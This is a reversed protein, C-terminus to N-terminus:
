TSHRLHVVGLAQLLDYLPEFAEFFGDWGGLEGGLAAHIEGLTRRGDILGVVRALPPSVSFSIDLGQPDRHTVSAGPSAAAVDRLVPAFYPILVADRDRTTLLAVVPNDRRVAYFTHKHMACTVLETVAAQEHPPLAVIRALIDPDKLFFRPDYLWSPTFSVLRLSASEILRYIEPVRYAVDRRHLLLDVIGADDALDTQVLINRKFLHSEPLDAVLRRAIKVQSSLTEPLQMRRLLEQLHYIGTRGVEGYVMVGIGGDPALQDALAKLGREPSELHHLVGGCDIYDYPGPCLTSVDELKGNLFRINALGCVKAREECTKRSARSMDLYTVEGGAKTAALQKAMAITSDGTGGGAVLVRLRRDDALRGGFVHHVVEPLHSPSVVWTRHREDEPDRRPYPYAEYQELVKDM